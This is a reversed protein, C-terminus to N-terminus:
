VADQRHALQRDNGRAIRAQFGHRAAAVAAARQASQLKGGVGATEKRGDLAPDGHDRNKGPGEGPRGEALRGRLPHLQETQIRIRRMRDPEAHHDDEGGEDRQHDALDHGLLERQTRGLRDGHDHRARQPHQRLDGGGEDPQEIARARQDELQEPEIAFQAVVHRGFLEVEDDSLRLRRAHELFAFPRDDGTDDPECVPRHALHHSRAGLDFPDVDGRSGILDAFGQLFDRM